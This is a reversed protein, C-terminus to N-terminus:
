HFDVKIPDVRRVRGGEDNGLYKRFRESIKSDTFNAMPSVVNIDYGSNALQEITRPPSTLSPQVLFGVISSKYGTGLVICSFIWSSFAIRFSVTSAVRKGQQGFLGVQDITSAVLGFIINSFTLSSRTSLDTKLVSSLMKFFFTAFLLSVIFSIWVLATFPKFIFKFNYGSLQPPSTVFLIYNFSFLTSYDLKKWRDETATGPTGLSNAARISDALGPLGGKKDWLLVPTANLHYIVHLSLITGPADSVIERRILSRTSESIFNRTTNYPSIIYVIDGNYDFTRRQAASAISAFSVSCKDKCMCMDLEYWKLRSLYFIQSRPILSIVMVNRFYTNLPISPLASLVNDPQENALLLYYHWNNRPNCATFCNTQYHIHCDSNVTNKLNMTSIDSILYVYLIGCFTFRPVFSKVSVNQETKFSKSYNQLNMHFDGDVKICKYHESLDPLISEYQLNKFITSDFISSNASVKFEIVEVPNELLLLDM